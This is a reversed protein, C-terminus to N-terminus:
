VKWEDAVDQLTKLTGMRRIKELFERYHPLWFSAYCDHLSFAIFSSKEIRLLAHKEWEKYSQGSRYMAFDDFAIPIKIINNKLAPAKVGISRESSALWEFKYFSLNEDTLEPTLISQAPRYGKIREDIRRCRELQPRGRHHDYTHFALCHGPGSIAERVEQLFAGVVHYTATVNREKEIALMQELHRGSTQDAVISFDPDEIVHGMGREIDHCVCITRSESSRRWFRM